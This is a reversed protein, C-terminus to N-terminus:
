KKSIVPLYISYGEENDQITLVATAVGFLGNEIDSLMLNISKDGDLLMDDM